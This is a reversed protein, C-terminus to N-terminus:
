GGGLSSLFSLSDGDELLENKQVYVRNKLVRLIKKDPCGIIKILEKITTGDDVSGSWTPPAKETAYKIL